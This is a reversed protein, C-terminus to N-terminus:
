VNGDHGWSRLVLCQVADEQLVFGRERAWCRVNEADDDLFGVLHSHWCDIECGDGIFPSGIKEQHGLPDDIVGNAPVEQDDLGRRVRIVGFKAIAM